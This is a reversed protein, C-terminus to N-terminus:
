AAVEGADDQEGQAPTAKPTGPEPGAITGTRGVPGVVNGKSDIITMTSPQAWVDHEPGVSYGLERRAESLMIVRKEFDSRVRDHKDKVDEWLAFVKATDFLVKFLGQNKQFEPLISRRLEAALNRQMPMVAQRWALQIMERMTAGVKTQQLGTGFGVVAAPVGTAATVREESIDRIPGVNFGQLNYQLLQVDTPETFAMAQGRKDQTFNEQVYEKLEKLKAPPIPKGGTKPSLVLGIIGLNRLISATFNAAQDDVYVERFSAALPSFGRRMNMPDMGFRFHVVDGVEYRKIQGNVSYEYHTIFAEPNNIDDWKPTILARPAWYLEKLSGFGDRVKIWYAEGFAFDCVTAQWLTEGTYFPNPQELLDPLGHDDIVRWQDTDGDRKEVVVPAEPVNRMLWCLVAVVVSSKLGNGVESAYDYQTGPLSFSWSAGAPFSLAKAGRGTAAKRHRVVSKKM